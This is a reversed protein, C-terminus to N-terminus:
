ESGANRHKRRFRKGLEKLRRLPATLRWSLSNQIADLEKRLGDVEAQRIYEAAAGMMRSAEVEAEARLARYRWQERTDEHPSLMHQWKEAVAVHAAMWGELDGILDLSHHHIVKLDATVVKKGASRAQLCIDIDYGHLSVGLGLSEDFRLHEIAWPTLALVFGDLTDVEGTHAYAPPDSSDWTVAPIEGGGYDDFKHLFSAWTVTGEWWAISRVGISGACGVIAVDRDEIAERVKRCFDPDVIEADQHVLVLAELGELNKARDLLLNYNRFLSNPSLQALLESDPESALEIGPEAFRHFQQEDTIACGFAIM